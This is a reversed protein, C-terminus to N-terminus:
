HERIAWRSLVGQSEMITRAVPGHSVGRKRVVWGLLVGQSEGDEVLPLRVAGIISPPADFRM